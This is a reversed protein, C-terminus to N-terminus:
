PVILTTYPIFTYRLLGMAKLLDAIIRAVLAGFLLVRWSLRWLSTPHAMFFRRKAKHESHLTEFIRVSRRVERRIRRSQARLAGFSQASLSQRM